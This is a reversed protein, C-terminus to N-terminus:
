ADTLAPGDRTDVHRRNLTPLNVKDAYADALVVAGLTLASLIAVSRTSLMKGFYTM